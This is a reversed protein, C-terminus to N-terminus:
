APVEDEDDNDDDELDLHKKIAWESFESFIIVGGHDKDAERWQKEPDSMDVGWKQLLPIAATFEDRSIKLDNSTDIRDFAVWLEYYNRLYKLLLRFEERSVYDDAILSKKKPKFRIRAADFAKNLVPNIEFLAPLNLTKM